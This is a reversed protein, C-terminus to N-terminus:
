LRHDAPNMALEVEGEGIDQFGFAASISGVADIGTGTEAPSRGTPLGLRLPQSTRGTPSHIWPSHRDWGKSATSTTSM